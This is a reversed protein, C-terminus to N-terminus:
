MPRTLFDLRLFEAEPAEHNELRVAEGTEIWRERGSPVEILLAPEKATFV